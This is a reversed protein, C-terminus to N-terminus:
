RLVQSEEPVSVSLWGHSLLDSPAKGSLGAEVHLLLSNVGLLKGRVEVHTGEGIYM